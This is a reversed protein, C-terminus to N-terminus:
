LYLDEDNWSWVDDEYAAKLHSGLPLVQWQQYLQERVYALWKAALETDPTKEVKLAPFVVNSLAVEEEPTITVTIYKM